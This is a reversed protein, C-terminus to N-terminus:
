TQLVKKGDILIEKALGRLNYNSAMCASYAGASCIVLFDGKKMEQIKLDKVFVDSTECIPGVIDYKKDKLNKKVPIIKHSANYLSPRILNNMGADIILFEKKIGKKIRVVKSILVGASGVMYRGPELIIELNLDSFIKEVLSAYDSIKLIESDYNYEIAMGGGLDLTDCVFGQKRLNLVIGRIKKFAKEFPALKKIQSGIHISLGNIKINKNTKYIKFIKIIEGESIGFKDESRGTSIKDHTEADVDPNVRLSVNIKKKLNLCISNIESLEEESEVNIQKINRLIAYKIERETKGVGSFVIKKRDVGNNLSLRLEGDSVVDMGAGLGSLTKIIKKNFNAKVAYCILPKIKSFSEKLKNFNKKIQTISYCYIPTQFKNGLSQLPVKEMFLDNDKYSLHDSFRFIDDKM